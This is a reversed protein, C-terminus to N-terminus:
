LRCVGDPPTYKLIVLGGNGGFASYEAGTVYGAQGGAGAADPLTTVTAWTNSGLGGAGLYAGGGAGGAAVGVAVGDSM